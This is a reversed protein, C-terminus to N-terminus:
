INAQLTQLKIDFYKLGGHWTYGPSSVCYLPNIDFEKILVKIFKEFFILHYFLMM